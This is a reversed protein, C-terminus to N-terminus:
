DDDDDDIGWHAVIDEKARPGHVRPCIIARLGLWCDNGSGDVGPVSFIVEGPKLKGGGAVQQGDRDGDRECDAASTLDAAPVHGTDEAEAVALATKGHGNGGPDHDADDDDDM